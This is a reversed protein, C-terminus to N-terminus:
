AMAGIGRQIRERLRVVGGSARRRVPGGEAKGFISGITGIGGLINGIIGATNSPGPATATSTGSGSASPTGGIGALTQVQQTPYDRQAIFDQYALNASNQNLAQEQAGVNQVASADNGALGQQQGAVATLAQAAPVQRSQDANFANVATGYGSELAADQQRLASENADRVARATFDASRSGGFTGSGVFTKNVQPLLNESLNRGALTGIDDVVAGTYPSMYRQATGPATWDATAGTAATRAADLAPQYNGVNGQVMGFAQQQEPTFGAVRAADYPQYPQSTAGQAKAIVDKYYQTLWDPLVTQTQTTTTSM